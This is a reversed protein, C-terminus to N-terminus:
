GRMSKLLHEMHIGTLLHQQKEKKLPLKKKM